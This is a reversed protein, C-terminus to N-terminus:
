RVILSFPMDSGEGEGKCVAMKATEAAMCANLLDMKKRVLV